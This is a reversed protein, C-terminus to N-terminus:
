RESCTKRKDKEEGKVRTRGFGRERWEEQKVEAELCRVSSVSCSKNEDRTEVEGDTLLVQTEELEFM